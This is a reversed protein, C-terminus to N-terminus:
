NMAPEISPNEGANREGYGNKCWKPTDWSCLVTDAAALPPVPLSEESVLAGVM